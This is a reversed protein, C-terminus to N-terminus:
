SVFFNLILLIIRFFHFIIVELISNLKEQVKQFLSVIENEETLKLPDILINREFGSFEIKTRQKYLLPNKRQLEAM